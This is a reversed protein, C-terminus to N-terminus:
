LPSRFYANVEEPSVDEVRQPNWRPNKDKDILLARIGEKLDHGKCFQSVMDRETAFVEELSKDRGRKLQEFSVAISTPSGKLCNKVSRKLWKDEGQFNALNERVEPASQGEMLQRIVPLHPEVQPTPLNVLSRSEFPAILKTVDELPSNTFNRNLLEKKLEDLNQSSVFSDALNMFLADSGNLRAGTLAAFLGTPQPAKNLFWTGGVDPFLGITVEPMAMLTTETAIRHSAGNTIGMGGGMVIGSAFVVVPKPYRHITLDLHYECTFFREPYDTGELLNKYLSVVDGGACFAQSSSSEILICQVGEDRSWKGLHKEMSQCMKMTLSNLTAPADLTIVGVQGKVSFHATM